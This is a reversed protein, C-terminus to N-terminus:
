GAGKKKEKQQKRKKKNRRDSWQYLSQDALSAFFDILIASLSLFPFSISCSKLLCRSCLPFKQPHWLAPVVCLSNMFTVPFFGLVINSASFYKYSLVSTYFKWTPKKAFHADKRYIVFLYRFFLQLDGPWYQDGPRIWKTVQDDGKIHASIYVGLTGRRIYIGKDATCHLKLSWICHAFAFEVETGKSEWCQPLVNRCKSVSTYHSLTALIFNSYLWSLSHGKFLPSHQFDIM